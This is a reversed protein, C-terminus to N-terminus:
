VADQVYNKECANLILVNADVAVGISLVFGAIGPLTMTVPILKFLAITIAVYVILALDAIIGPLRYYAAM